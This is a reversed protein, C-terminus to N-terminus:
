GCEQEYNGRVSVRRELAEIMQLANMREAELREIEAAAADNLRGIAYGICYGGIATCALSLALTM